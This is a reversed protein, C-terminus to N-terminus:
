AGDGEQENMAANCTSCVGYLYTTASEVVHGDVVSGPSTGTSIHVDYLRHCVRCRFHSHPTDCLDYRVAEKEITLPCVAGAEVLAKLGNYVTARSISPHRACVARFVEDVTPHDSTERLYDMIMVRQLTPTMGLDRLRKVSNHNKM